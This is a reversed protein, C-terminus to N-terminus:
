AADSGFEQYLVRDHREKYLTWQYSKCNSLVHGLTEDSGCLRCKPSISARQVRAMFANTKIVGGQAAMM